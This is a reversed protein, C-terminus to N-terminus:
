VVWRWLIVATLLVVWVGTGVVARVARAGSVKRGGFYQQTERVTIPQSPDRSLAQYVDWAVCDVHQHGAADVGRTNLVGSRFYKYLTPRCAWSCAAGLETWSWTVQDDGPTVVLCDICRATTYSSAELQQHPPCRWETPMPTGPARQQLSPLPACQRVGSLNQVGGEGCTWTCGRTFNAGPPPAPCAACHTCNERPVPPASGPPCESACAECRAARGNWVFGPACTATCNEHLFLLGTHSEPFDCAECQGDSTSTCGRTRRMGACSRCQACFADSTPTGALLYQSDRCAPRTHPRCDESFWDRFWGAACTQECSAPDDVLGPSTFNWAGRLSGRCPACRTCNGAPYAGVPCPSDRRTGCFTCVRANGPISANRQYYGASQNCRHDCGSVVWHTGAPLPAGLSDLVPECIVCSYMEWSFNQTTPTQLRSLEARFEPAYQVVSDQVEEAVQLHSGTVCARPCDVGFGLANGTVTAYDLEICPISVADSTNTCAQFRAYPSENCVQSDESDRSELRALLLMASYSTCPLCAYPHVGSRYHGQVCRTLCATNAVYVESRSAV